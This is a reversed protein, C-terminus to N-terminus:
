LDSEEPKWAISVEGTITNKWVQVMCNHHIEELDYVGTEIKEEAAEWGPYEDSEKLCSYCPEDGAGVVASGNHYKCTRCNKAM